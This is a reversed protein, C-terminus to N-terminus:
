VEKNSLVCNSFVRRLPNLQVSPVGIDRNVLRAESKSKYVWVPTPKHQSDVHPLERAKQIYQLTEDLLFLTPVVQENSPPTLKQLVPPINFPKINKSEFVADAIDFLSGM